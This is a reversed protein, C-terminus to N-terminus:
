VFDKAFDKAIDALKRLFRLKDHRGFNPSLVSRYDIKAGHSQHLCM